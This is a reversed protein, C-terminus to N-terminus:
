QGQFQLLLNGGQIQWQNPVLSLSNGVLLNPLNFHIGQGALYSQIKSGITGADIYTDPNNERIYANSWIPNLKLNAGTITAQIGTSSLVLSAQASVNSLFEVYPEYGKNDTPSFLRVALPIGIDATLTNPKSGNALNLVDPAGQTLFQFLFLASESYSLLDPWVFFQGLRSHMFSNFASINTSKESYILNGSFYEGMILAQVMDSPLFFYSDTGNAPAALSNKDISFNYKIDQNASVFPYVFRLKGNMLVDGASGDIAESPDFFIKLDKRVSPLERESLLALTSSQSWSKLASSIASQIPAQFNNITSLQQLVASKVIADFGSAGTCSMKSLTWAGSPWNAKLDALSIVVENNVLNAALKADVYSGNPSLNLEINNCSADLVVNVIIGGIDKVITQSISISNILLKASISQSNLDWVRQSGERVPAAFNYSINLNLGSISVPAGAQAVMDPIPVSKQGQLSNGFDNILQNFLTNGLHLQFDSDLEYAARAEATGLLFSLMPVILFKSKMLFVEFAHQRTAIIFTLM